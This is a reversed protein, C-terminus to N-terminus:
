ITELAWILHFFLMDDYMDYMIHWVPCFPKEQLLVRFM